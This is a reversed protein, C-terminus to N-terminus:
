KINDFLDKEYKEQQEESMYCDGIWRWIYYWDWKEYIDVRSSNSHAFYYTEYWDVRLEIEQCEWVHFNMNLCIMTLWILREM